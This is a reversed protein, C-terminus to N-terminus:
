LVLSVIFVVNLIINHIPRVASQMDVVDLTVISSPMKQQSQPETTSHKPRDTRKCYTQKIKHEYKPAATFTGVNQLLEVKCNRCSVKGQSDFLHQTCAPTGDYDRYPNKLARTDM